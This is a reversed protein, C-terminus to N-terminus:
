ICTRMGKDVVHGDDPQDKGRAETGSPTVDALALLMHICKVYM